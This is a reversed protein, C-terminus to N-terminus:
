LSQKNIASAGNSWDSAGIAASFVNTCNTIKGIIANPSGQVSGHCQLGDAGRGKRRKNYGGHCMKGLWNRGM